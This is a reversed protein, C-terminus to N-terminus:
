RDRADAGRGRLPLPERRARRFLALPHREGPRPRSRRPATRALARGGRRGTLARRAPRRGLGRLTPRRRDPAPRARRRARIRVDKWAAAVRAKWACVARARALGDETMSASRRAAPEYLTECYEGVMRRTNFVPAVSQISRKIRSVWGRPVGAPDRDYFLPVLQEELLRYLLQAEVRDGYETDAYEEGKGIAFGNDGSYAEAWWGDLVSAHLAGNLAAKMGSTGSAELPRRPTNLWVDVGAVLARAIGMDYDEVFVIRGRFAETRSARVIDRILEKGGWDQPHAKGAFVLQVPRDERAVIKCLREADRFLLTGRKYTAFRRRSGSPSRTPTSRPAAQRM